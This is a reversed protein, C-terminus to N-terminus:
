SVILIKVVRENEFLQYVITYDGVEIRYVNQKIEENGHPLPNDALTSIADTVTAAEGRPIRYVDARADPKIAITWRIM